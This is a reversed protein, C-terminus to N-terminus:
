SGMSCTGNLWRKAFETDEDVIRPILSVRDAEGLQPNYKQIVDLDPFQELRAIAAAVREADGAEAARVYESIWSCQWHTAALVLVEGKPMAIPVEVTRGDQPDPRLLGFVFESDSESILTGGAGGPVLDVLDPAAVGDPYPEGFASIAPERTPGVDPPVQTTDRSDATPPSSTASPPVAPDVNGAFPMAMAAFTVGGVVALAVFSSLVVRGTRHRAIRREVEDLDAYLATTDLGRGTIAQLNQFAERADSM